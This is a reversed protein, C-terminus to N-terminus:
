DLVLCFKRVAFFLPEVGDLAEVRTASREFYLSNLSIPLLIM